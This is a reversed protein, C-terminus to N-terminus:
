LVTGEGARWFFFLPPLSGGSISIASKHQNDSLYWIYQLRITNQVSEGLMLKTEIKLKRRM